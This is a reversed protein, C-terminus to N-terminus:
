VWEAEVHAKQFTYDKRNITTIGDKLSCKWRAKTRTVKEYLCLLLNEDPGEDEGESILYDDDSDDLESGVEDNDLLASRKNQKEQQRLLEAAKQGNGEIVLEFPQGAGPKGAANQETNQGQEQEADNPLMGEEVKIDESGTSPILNTDNNASIGTNADEPLNDENDNFSNNHSGSSNDIGPLILGKHEDKVHVKNNNNNEITELNPAIASSAGMDSNDNNTLDWTFGTTKVDSLKEQWVRKLDQLTQEDIGANEFDERVENIVSDVIIEYVRGAESNSM